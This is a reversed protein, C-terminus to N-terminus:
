GLICRRLDKTMDKLAAFANAAVDVVSAAALEIVPHWVWPDSIKQKSAAPCSTRTDAVAVGILPAGACYV